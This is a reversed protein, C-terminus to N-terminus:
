GGAMDEGRQDCEKDRISMCQQLARAIPTWEITATYKGVSVRVPVVREILRSLTQRTVLPDEAELDQQWEQALGVIEDADPLREGNPDAMLCRREVEVAELESLVEEHLRRYRVKSFRSDVFALAAAKWRSRAETARQDLAVVALGVDAGAPRATAQWARRFEGRSEPVHGVVALLQRVASIVIADITPRMASAYCTPDPAQAGHMRGACVYKPHQRTLSMGYM